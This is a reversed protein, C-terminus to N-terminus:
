RTLLSLMRTFVGICHVEATRIESVYLIMCSMM